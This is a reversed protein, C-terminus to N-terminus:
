SAFDVDVGSCKYPCWINWFKKEKVKCFLLFVYFTGVLIFCCWTNQIQWSDRINWIDWINGFTKAGFADRGLTVNRQVEEVLLIAKLLNTPTGLQDFLDSLPSIDLLYKNLRTKDCVLKQWVLQSRRIDCVLGAAWVNLQLGILEVYILKINIYTLKVYRCLIYWSLMRWSSM